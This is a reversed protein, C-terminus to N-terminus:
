VKNAIHKYLTAFKDQLMIKFEKNTLLLNLAYSPELSDLYSELFDYQKQHLEEKFYDDGYTSKLKLTEKQKELKQKDLDKKYEAQLKEINNNFSIADKKAKEYEETLSSIKNEIELVKKIDLEEIAQEKLNNYEQIQKENSDLTQEFSSLLKALDSARTGEISALEGIVISSRALGRKLMQNETEKRSADYYSNIEKQNEQNKSMLKENSKLIEDIKNEYNKNSTKKAEEFKENIVKEAEKSIEQESKNPVDIKELNLSDPADIFDGSKYKEAIKNAEELAENVTMKNLSQNTKEQNKADNSENVFSKTNQTNQKNESLNEEKKKQNEELNKLKSNITNLFKIRNM